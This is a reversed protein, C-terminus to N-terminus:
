SINSLLGFTYFGSMCKTLGEQLKIPSWFNSIYGQNEVDTAKSANHSWFLKTTTVNLGVCVSLLTLVDHYFNPLQDPAGQRRSDGGMTCGACHNIRGQRSQEFALWLMGTVYWSYLYWSLVVQAVDPRKWTAISRLQKYNRTM